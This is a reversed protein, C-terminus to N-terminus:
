LETWSLIRLWGDLLEGDVTVEIHEVVVELYTGDSWGAADSEEAFVPLDNTGGLASFAVTYDGTVGEYWYDSGSLEGIFRFRDGVQIGGMDASNLRNLLDDVTTDTVPAESGAASPAPTPSLEEDASEADCERDVILRPETITEGPAPSQECVIWNSEDIVGFLGGGVVEVDGGFGAREIDNQAVDLRNGVVDPMVSPTEPGCATLTM